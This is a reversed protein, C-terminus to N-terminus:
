CIREWSIDYLTGVINQYHFELVKLSGSTANEFIVKRCFNLGVAHVTNCRYKIETIIPCIIILLILRTNSLIGPLNRLLYLMHM